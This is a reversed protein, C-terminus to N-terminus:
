KLLTAEINGLREKLEELSMVTWNLGTRELIEWVQSTSTWNLVKASGQVLGWTWAWGSETWTWLQIDCGVQDRHFGILIDFYYHLQKMIKIQLGEFIVVAQHFM